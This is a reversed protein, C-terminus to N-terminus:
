IEGNLESEVQEIRDILLLIKQTLETIEDDHTYVLRTLTDQDLPTYDQKVTESGEQQVDGRQFIKGYGAYLLPSVRALIRSFYGCLFNGERLFDLLPIQM